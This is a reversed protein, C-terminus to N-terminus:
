TDLFRHVAVLSGVVGVVVGVILVMIGTGVAQEPTVVLQGLLKYNHDEAVGSMVLRAGMVAMFAIAAGLLGQLMGELMFPIRIFWNTAGVLKMVSVERRRAFIAIRITNLILLSASGLLVAAVILLGAQLVRTVTLMTAIAKKAYTVGRVGPDDKFRQGLSDIFEAQTPVIRFSPPMDDVTLSALTDPENAFLTQAEAYAAPKDIFTFRKVEPAASLEAAVADIQSQPADPKMFVSLETGGRWQVTANAVGQRLLLAGGVLALSVAVTLIAASSMLLNRRLNSGTEKIVYTLKLAM